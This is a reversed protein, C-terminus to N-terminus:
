NKHNIPLTILDGLKRNWENPTFVGLGSAPYFTLEGFYEKDDVVYLDVRLFPLGKSLKECIEIMKDLHKPRAVPNLGNRAVPNLGNRAVPNLGVFEQHNWYMDYFDITEKTHRDRIVQCYMPKGNFCFFKYDTLDYNHDDVKDSPIIFKEVILRKSVNKYPWERNQYFYSKNLGKLLKNKANHVNLKSKDKCIVVGGSDHSCKIVFQNPLADWDIEEVSNYVSITPVIYDEGIINKVYEKAEIKDVMRSYEAKKNNLKLWQLKESFTQPNDFNMWYGMRLRFLVHLFLKDSVLPAIKNWCFLLVVNPNKFMLKIVHLIKLFMNM